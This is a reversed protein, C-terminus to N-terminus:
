SEECRGYVIQLSLQEPGTQYLRKGSRDYRSHWDKRYNNYKM